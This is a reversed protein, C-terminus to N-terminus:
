NEPPADADPRAPVDAKMAAAFTAIPLHLHPRWPRYNWAVLGGFVAMIGLPVSAEAFRDTSVGTAVAAIGIGVAFVLCAIGIGFMATGARGREGILVQLDPRADSIAGAVDSIVRRFASRQPDDRRTRFSANIAIRHVRDGVHLDLRKFLKKDISQAVHNLATIDAYDVRWNLTGHLDYQAVYTATVEYTVPAALLAPKFSTRGDTVPRAM